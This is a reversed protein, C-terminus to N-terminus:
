DVKARLAPPLFDFTAVKALPIPATIIKLEVLTDIQEQLRKKTILGTQEGKAPDGAILQNAAMACISYDMFDETMQDNRAAILKKGPSADGTMFDDWGRISAAVFARVAAPNERAYKQTCFYVRYPQFGSDALLLTRPKAGNKAVYFPENTIFCQQIFDKDSMFQALGFNLPIVNFDIKYRAKVYTVWNAGPTAMLSKGKLDAFSKVPNEDHLLLAQPDRQMLAGIIVLPLGQNVSMIVDDSRGMAIESLGSLMGNVGPSGPGGTIIEVEIGAEKYFGNALAQYHGGHEAQPFWDTQYRVKPLPAGAAAAGGTTPAPESKGCGALLVLSLVSAFLPLSRM